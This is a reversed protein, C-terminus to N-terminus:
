KEVRPKSQKVLKPSLQKEQETIETQYVGGIMSIFTEHLKKWDSEQLRSSSSEGEKSQKEFYADGRLVLPHAQLGSSNIGLLKLGELSRIRSLAVYAQGPEFVKSLDIEAADLTMGQSKHVTIAWALRLPIQKVVAVIEDAQEISRSELDAKIIQGDHIRVLPLRDREDFGIVEGTTGNYYSKQPNNKVFMVQAGIKLGLVEPALMSKKLNEVLLKEGAGQALYSMQEGPLADLEEINIRDVDINHTYLKVAHDLKIHNGIRTQLLQLSSPSIEGKRLENM